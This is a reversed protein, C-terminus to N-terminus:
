EHIMRYKLEALQWDIDNDIDQVEVQSLLIAGSNDNFLQGAEVLAEINFWYFQGADHFAVPLDQSRSMQYDPWNMAVKSHADLKLSRLIPYGFDVIPFVSTYNGKTLLELGERLRHPKILPATPYICCAVEFEMGVRKYAEVVEVIVDYTGAFDNSNEKSRMFPVKAGHKIAITAIEDDDTSVMVEDFLNSKLACEISYSIIPEGLFDKINKRPIRKSGGRAPIICLANSM